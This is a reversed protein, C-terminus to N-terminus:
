LRRDPCDATWEALKGWVAGELTVSQYVKKGGAFIVNVEESM